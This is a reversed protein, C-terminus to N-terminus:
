KCLLEIVFMGDLLDIISNIQERLEAAKRGVPKTGRRIDVEEISLQTVLDDINSLLRRVDSSYGVRRHLKDFYARTQHWDVANEIHLKETM